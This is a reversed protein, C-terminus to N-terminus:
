VRLYGKSGEWRSPVITGGRRYASESGANIALFYLDFKRQTWTIDVWLVTAADFTSGTSRQVGDFIVRRAM